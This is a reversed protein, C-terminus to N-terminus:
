LTAIRVYSTLAYKGSNILQYFNIHVLAIERFNINNGQAMGNEIQRQVQKGVQGMDGVGTGM